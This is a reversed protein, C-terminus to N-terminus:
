YGVVVMGVGIVNVCMGLVIVFIFGVDFGM